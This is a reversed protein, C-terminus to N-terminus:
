LATPQQVPLWVRFTCGEGPESSVEIRGHHKKIAAFSFSLGLGAGKGTPKTSFFPDFIRTLNQPEIGVGNDAIDIWIEDGAESGHGISIRIEGSGEIAQAANLLLNMFVQMLEIPRCVIDPVDAYNKVLRKNEGFQEELIATVEDLMRKVSAARWAPEHMSAIERLTQLSEEAVSLVQRSDDILHQMQRRVAHDGGRDLDGDQRLLSDLKALRAQLAEVPHVLQRAVGNSLMGISVTKADRHMQIKAQELRKHATKLEAYADQLTSEAQQRVAAESRLRQNQRSLENQTLRLALHASIRALMEDVELPKTIYDVGGVKFGELRNEADTLATMFIVPIDRTAIKSKLERCVDYGNMDPMMVDLLILDPASAVARRLGEKGDQAVVVRLGQQELLEVAVMLNAPTDDVILVTADAEKESMFGAGM